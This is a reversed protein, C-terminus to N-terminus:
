KSGHSSTAPLHLGHAVMMGATGSHSALGFGAAIIARAIRRTM